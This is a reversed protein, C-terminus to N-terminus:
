IRSLQLRSIVSEFNEQYEAVLRTQQLRILDAMPNDYIGGFQETLMAKFETWVPLNNLSFSKVM